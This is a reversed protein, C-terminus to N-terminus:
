YDTNLKRYSDPCDKTKLAALQISFVALQVSRRKGNQWRNM